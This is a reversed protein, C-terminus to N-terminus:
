AADAIPATVAKLAAELREGARARAAGADIALRDAAVISVDTVGIFALIHRLYATAFDYASGIEVGGSAVIIVARKDALLGVPGNETYRFTRRARAVQDVWAKLSAPISFNYIPAAIVIIDAAELEEVLSDSFALTACHTATREEPATFNAEIWAEDVFPMGDALDRRTVEGLRRDRDLAAIFRDALERTVSGARRGSADIRLVNLSADTM